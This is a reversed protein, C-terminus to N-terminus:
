GCVSPIITPHHCKKFTFSSIEVLFICVATVYKWALMPSTLFNENIPHCVNLISKVWFSEWIHLWFESDRYIKGNWFFRVKICLLSRTFELLVRFQKLYLVLREQFVRLSSAWIDNDWTPLEALLNSEVMPCNM